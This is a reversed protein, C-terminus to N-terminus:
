GRVWLDKEDLTFYVNYTIWFLVDIKKNKDLDEFITTLLAKKFDEETTLNSMIEFYASKGRKTLNEISVM